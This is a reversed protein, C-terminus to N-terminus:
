TRVLLFMPHSLLIAILRNNAKDRKVDSNVRFFVNSIYFRM